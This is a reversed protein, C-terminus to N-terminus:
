ASFRCFGFWLKASFWFCGNWIGTQSRSMIWFTSYLLITKKHSFRVLRIPKCQVGQPLSTVIGDAWRGWCHPILAKPPAYRYITVLISCCVFKVTIMTCASLIRRSWPPSCLLNHWHCCYGEISEGNPRTNWILFHIKLWVTFRYFCDHHHGIQACWEQNLRIRYTPSLTREVFSHQENMVVSLIVQDISCPLACHIITPLRVLKGSSKGYRAVFEFLRQKLQHRTTMQGSHHLFNHPDM